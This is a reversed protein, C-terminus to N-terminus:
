NVTTGVLGDEQDSGLDYILEGSATIGHEVPGQALVQGRAANRDFIQPDAVAQAGSFSNQFNCLRAARTAREANIALLKFIFDVIRAHFGAIRGRGAPTLASKVCTYKERPFNM